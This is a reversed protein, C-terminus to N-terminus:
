AAMQLLELEGKLQKIEAERQLEIEGAAISHKPNPSRRVTRLFGVEMEIVAIKEKIEDQPNM